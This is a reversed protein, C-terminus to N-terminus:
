RLRDVEKEEKHFEYGNVKLLIRDLLEIEESVKALRKNSEELAQVHKYLNYPLVQVSCNNVLKNYWACNEEKCPEKFMPCERIM